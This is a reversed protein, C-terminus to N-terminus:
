RRGRPGTSSCSRSARRPSSPSSVLNPGTPPMELDRAMRCKAKYIAQLKPISEAFNRMWPKIEADAAIDTTFELLMLLPPKSVTKKRGGAIGTLTHYGM